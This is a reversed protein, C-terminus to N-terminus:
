NSQGVLSVPSITQLISVFAIIGITILISVVVVVVTCNRGTASVYWRANSALIVDDIKRSTEAPISM